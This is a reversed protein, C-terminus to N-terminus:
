KRASCVNIHQKGRGGKKAELDRSCDAMFPSMKRYFLFFYLLWSFGPGRRTLLGVEQREEGEKDEFEGEAFVTAEDERGTPSALGEFSDRWRRSVEMGEQHKWLETRTCLRGM